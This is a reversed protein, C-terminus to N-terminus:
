RLICGKHPTVHDNQGCVETMYRPELQRLSLADLYHNKTIEDLIEVAAQLEDGEATNCNVRVVVPIVWEHCGELPIVYSMETTREVMPVTEDVLSACSCLPRRSCRECLVMGAELPNPM